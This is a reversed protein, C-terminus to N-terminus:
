GQRWGSVYLLPLIVTRGECDFPIVDATNSCMCHALYKSQKNTQFSRSWSLSISSETSDLHVCFDSALESGQLSSGKQPFTNLFLVSALLTDCTVLGDAGLEALNLLVCDSWPGLGTVVNPGLAQMSVFGLATMCIWSGALRLNVHFLGGLLTRIMFFILSALRSFGKLSSQM